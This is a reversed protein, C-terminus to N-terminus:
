GQGHAATDALAAKAHQQHTLRMDALHLRGDPIRVRMFHKLIRPDGQQLFWITVGAHAEAQAPKEKHPAKTHYLITYSFRHLKMMLSKTSLPSRM